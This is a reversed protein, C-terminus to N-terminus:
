EARACNATAVLDVGTEAINEIIVHGLAIPASPTVAGIARLVEPIKAKPVMAKTKVSCVPRVGGDVYVLSTVMRMPNTFEQEGYAVGRKCGHNEVRVADGDAWVSLRCGLPCAICTMERKDQM